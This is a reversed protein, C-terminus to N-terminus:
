RACAKPVKNGRYARCVYGIFNEFDEQLPINNVVVWPVFRHRPNLKTTEDAYAMELQFGLGNNYCNNVPTQDLNNAGYCSQWQTHKDMLHLREVCYIFKFHKEVKPWSNIACAEIVDLRCEDVGHMFNACYPCLSEYYVSLNVKDDSSSAMVPQIQMSDASAHAAAVLFTLVLLKEFGM